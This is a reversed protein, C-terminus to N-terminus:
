ASTKRKRKPPEAIEHIHSLLNMVDERLEDCRRECLTHKKNLDEVALTLYTIEDRRVDSRSQRVAAWIERAGAVVVGLIAVLWGYKDNDVSLRAESKV